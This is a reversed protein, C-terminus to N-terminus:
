RWRFNERGAGIEFHYKVIGLDVKTYPGASAQASVTNGSLTFHFRQQNVATPALMAAEMGNRFWGPMKGNVTCLSEPKKSRRSRGQNAGYGIAIVCVLKEGENIEAVVKKRSFTGGVWCTNLGLTQALLVLREGYWGTHEDLDASEPGIMAIYNRVGHLLGYNALFGKFAAPDETLLQINLGSERNCEAIEKNLQAAIEAPIPKATYRRVSHRAKIAEQLTM